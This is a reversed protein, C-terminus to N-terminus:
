CPGAPKEWEKQECEVVCKGKERVLSALVVVWGSVVLWHVQGSRWEAVQREEERVVPMADQM